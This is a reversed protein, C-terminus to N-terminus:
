MMMWEVRAGMSRRVGFGTICYRRSGECDLAAEVTFAAVTLVCEYSDQFRTKDCSDICTHLDAFNEGTNQKKICM